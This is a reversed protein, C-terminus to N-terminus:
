STEIDFYLPEKGVKLTDIWNHMIGCFYRFYAGRRRCTALYMAGKIQAPTFIGLFRILSEEVYYGSHRPCSLWYDVLEQLETLSTARQPQSLDVTQTNNM